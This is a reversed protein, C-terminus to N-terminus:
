LACVSQSFWSLVHFGVAVIDHVFNEVGFVDLRWDWGIDVLTVRAHFSVDALFVLM